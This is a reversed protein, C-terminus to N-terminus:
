SQLREVERFKLKKSTRLNKRTLSTLDSDMLEKTGM